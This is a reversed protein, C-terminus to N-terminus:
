KGKALDIGIREGKYTADKFARIIEGEYKKDVEFFSFGKLVEISGIEVSKGPTKDNILDIITRKNIGNKKGMNFFFRSFEYGGRSRRDRDRDSRGGRDGRGGRSRDRDSREGRPGRDRGWDRDGRGGRGDRSRRNDRGRREGRDYDRTNHRSEDVNLDPANAYYELFRNFEVSVFHKILEERELWALKKYIVPMFEAIQIENVEVKEVGDILSFLQKGCIEKGSPVIKKIFPKNVTREVQKLKGKERLHILTVSIGNKGARGTRGSRHIYIEPDDPLNYNIVHTLDNVDLGRAAVDTAVLMQLHKGRFRAMVHDRQAQSLDGHLADANYGDQMLKEAVDKTEVRTRCFIIGYINPNVDAVRKLALYRDRAQVLYYHHEVNDAGMNKRGVSIEFIDKMYKKSINVIERPMTASFLLTQKEDPSNELIADLDDKFGMSLMEDAEDLVVWRIENVRLKRRKILDLMRGPTGVVIQAGRELESIQARIDSGGYVVAIRFNKVHKSYTKLDNGIQMALERTPSLILAQISKKTTDIQQIIPLGFAATKGTGTQALAVMDQKNELLFPVVKEQIPTPQEYGLEEVASQIETSLGMENFLIM